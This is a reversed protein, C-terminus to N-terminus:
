QLHCENVIVDKNSGKSNKGANYGYDLSLLSGIECGLLLKLINEDYNEFDIKITVECSSDSIPLFSYEARVNATYIWFGSKTFSIALLKNPIDTSFNTPGFGLDSTYRSGDVNKLADYVVNVPTNLLISKCLQKM